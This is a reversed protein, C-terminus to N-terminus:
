KPTIAIIIWSLGTGIAMMLWSWHLKHGQIMYSQINLWAGDSHAAGLIACVVFTLIAGPILAKFFDM